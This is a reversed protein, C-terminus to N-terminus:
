GEVLSRALDAMGKIRTDLLRRGAEATAGTADGLIGNPSQYKIGYTFSEIQSRRVQTPSFFDDDCRGPAAKSMDVLDPRVALMCSTEDWGSHVGAHAATIGHEARIRQAEDDASSRAGAALSLIHVNCKDMIKKAILPAVAVMMDTNGGHSSMLLLDKFGYRSLCVCTEELTRSYTEHTLALSGPFDLHHASLAPRIVAAVLANGLDRAVGEALAYGLITDTGTPLHPGHQEIAGSVVIVTTSGNAIADQIQVWSMHEMLVM